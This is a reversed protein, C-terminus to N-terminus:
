FIQLKKIKVMKSMSGDVIKVKLNPNDRQDLRFQQVTYGPSECCYDKYIVFM